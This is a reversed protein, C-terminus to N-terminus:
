PLMAHAELGQGVLDVPVLGRRAAAPQGSTTAPTSSAARPPRRRPRRRARRGRAARCWRTRPPRRRGPRRRPWRCARRPGRPRRGGLRDHQGGGGPLDPGGRLGEAQADVDGGRDVAQDPERQRGAVIHACRAPPEACGAATCPRRSLREVGGDVLGAGLEVGFGTSPAMESLPPLTVTRWGTVPVVVSTSRCRRHRAGSRPGAVAGDLDRGGGDGGFTVASSSARTRLSNASMATEPGTVTEAFPLDNVTAGLANAGATTSVASSTPCADGRAGVRLLQGRQHVGGGLVGADLDLRLVGHHREGPARGGHARVHGAHREVVGRDGRSTQFAMEVVVRVAVTAVLVVSGFNVVAMAFAVRGLSFIEEKVVLNGTPWGRTCLM